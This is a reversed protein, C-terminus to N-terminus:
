EPVILKHNRGKKKHPPLPPPSHPLSNNDSYGNHIIQTSQLHKRIEHSLRVICVNIAGKWHILLSLGTLNLPLGVTGFSLLLAAMAENGLLALHRPPLLVHGSTFFPKLTGVTDVESFDVGSGKFRSTM